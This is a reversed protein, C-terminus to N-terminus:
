SMLISKVFTIWEPYIDHWIYYSMGFEINNISYHVKPAHQQMVDNFVDTLVDINNNSGTIGFFVHWIWLYQSAVTELMVNSKGHDGRVYQGKLTVLYNKWKRHMCDISEWRCYANSIKLLQIECITHGLYVWWMLQLSISVNKYLSKVFKLYDDLTDAFIRYALMRFTCKQLQIFGLYFIIMM